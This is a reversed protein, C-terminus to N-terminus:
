LQRAKIVQEFDLLSRSDIREIEQTVFNQLNELESLDGFSASKKAMDIMFAIHDLTIKVSEISILKM